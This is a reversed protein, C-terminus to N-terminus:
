EGEKLMNSIHRSTVSKDREFFDSMQNLNLWVTEKELKVEISTYGEETRYIKIDSKEM